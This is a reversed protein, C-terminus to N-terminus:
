GGGQQMQGGPRVREHVCAGYCWRELLGRESRERRGAGRQREVATAEQLPSSPIVAM